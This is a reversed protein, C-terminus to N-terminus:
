PCAGEAGCAIKRLAAIANGILEAGARYAMTPEDFGSLGDALAAAEPPTLCEIPTVSTKIGFAVAGTEPLRVLTQRETRLYFPGEPSASAMLKDTHRLPLHLEPVAHVLWNVRVLPREPRLTDFMRNVRRGLTENYEPVPTHITTMPRGMKEPLLWRSPFCLVASVLRYEGSLEDPLLLCFDEAIMHGLATLPCYEEKLTPSPDQGLHAKIACLLELAPAEGENLAAVSIDHAEALVEARRTMQADFDAHRVTWEAPDLPSIGPPHATRAHMFPTYPAHDLLWPPTANM